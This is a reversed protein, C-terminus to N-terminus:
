KRRPASCVALMPEERELVSCRGIVPCYTADRRYRAIQRQFDPITYLQVEDWFCRLVWFFEGATWERVHEGYAPTNAVSAFACRDKNPTSVIARPAVRSMKSLFTPYDFIHEIVELAVVLDFQDQACDEFGLRCFHINSAARNQRAWALTKEDFESATIQVTKNQSAVFSAFMGTGCGAELLTAPNGILQAAARNILSVSYPEFPGGSAQRKLKTDLNTPGGEPREAYADHCFKLSHNELAHALRRINTRYSFYYRAKDLLKQRIARSDMNQIRKLRALQFQFFGNM